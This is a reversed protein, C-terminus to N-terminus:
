TGSMYWVYANFIKAGDRVDELEKVTMIDSINIAPSYYDGPMYLTSDDKKQGTKPAYAFALGTDCLLSSYFNKIRLYYIKEAWNEQQYLHLAKENWPMVEGDYLLGVKMELKESPINLLEALKLFARQYYMPVQDKGQDSFAPAPGIKTGDIEIEDDLYLRQAIKWLKKELRPLIRLFHSAGADDLFHQLISRVEIPDGEFGDRLYSLLWEATLKKVLEDDLHKRVEKSIAERLLKM